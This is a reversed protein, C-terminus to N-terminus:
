SSLLTTCVRWTSSIPAASIVHIGAALIDQVDQYRKANKIGPGTTPALEDGVVVEPKRAIVADVDMEDVVIQHYEFKRRPVVELGEVLKATEPGGTPKWLGSWWM